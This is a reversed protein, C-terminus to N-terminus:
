CATVQMMGLFFPLLVTFQILPRQANQTRWALKVPDFKDSSCFVHTRCPSMSVIDHMNQSIFRLGVDHVIGLLRHCDTRGTCVRFETEPLASIEARVQLSQLQSSKAFDTRDPLSPPATRISQWSLVLAARTDHLPSQVDSRCDGPQAPVRPSTVHMALRKLSQFTATLQACISIRSDYQPQTSMPGSVRAIM